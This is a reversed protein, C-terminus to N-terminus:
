LVLYVRTFIIRIIQFPVESYKINLLVAIVSIIHMVFYLMLKVVVCM